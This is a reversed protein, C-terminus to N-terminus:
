KTKIYPQFLNRIENPISMKKFTMKDTFVHILTCELYIQDNKMFQYLTTFSSTRMKLVTLQIQITSGAVLPQHFDCNSSVIPTLWEPHNFWFSWDNKLSLLWSEYTRHCITWTNAFFLIGAPDCEDFHIQYNLTYNM